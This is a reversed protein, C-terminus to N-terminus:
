PLIKNRTPRQTPSSIFCRCLRSRQRGSHRRHRVVVTCDYKDDAAAVAVVILAPVIKKTTQQQASWLVCSPPVRIQRMGSRPHRCFLSLVIRETTPRHAPSSLCRIADEKDVAATATVFFLFCFDCEDDAEAPPAWRRCRTQMARHSAGVCSQARLQLLRVLRPM